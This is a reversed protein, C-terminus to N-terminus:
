IGRLGVVLDTLPKKYVYFAFGQEDHKAYGSSVIGFAKIYAKQTNVDAGEPLLSYLVPVVGERGLYETPEVPNARQVYPPASGTWSAAKLLVLNTKNLRQTEKLLYQDNELLAEPVKSLEIGDALTERDWQTIATNFQPPDHQPLYGM